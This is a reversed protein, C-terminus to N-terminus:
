RQGIDRVVDWSWCHHIGPRYASNRWSESLRTEESQLATWPRFGLFYNLKTREFCSRGNDTDSHVYNWKFAVPACVRRTHAFLFLASNKEVSSMVAVVCRRFSLNRRVPSAIMRKKKRQIKWVSIRSQVFRRRIANVQPKFGVFSTRRKRVILLVVVPPSPLTCVIGGEM